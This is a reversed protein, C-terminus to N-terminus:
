FTIGTRVFFLNIRRYSPVNSFGLIAQNEGFAYNRWGIDISFDLTSSLHFDLGGGITFTIPVYDIKLYPAAAKIKQKCNASSFNLKFLDLSIRDFPIGSEIFFFPSVCQGIDIDQNNVIYEEPCDPCPYKSGLALGKETRESVCKRTPDWRFHLLALPRQIDESTFSNYIPVGTSLMLGIGYQRNNGFRIGAAVEGLFAEKWHKTTPTLYDRYTTYGARIELFYWQCSKLPCKLSLQPLRFGFPTCTCEKCKLKITDWDVYRFRKPELPYNYTEFTNFPQGFKPGIFDIDEFPIFEVYNLNPSMADLFVARSQEKYNRASGAICTDPFIVTELRIISGRLANGKRVINPSFPHSYYKYSSDPKIRIADDTRKFTSCGFSLFLYPLIFLVFYFIKKRM